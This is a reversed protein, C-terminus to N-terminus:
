SSLSDPTWGLGTVATVSASTNRPALFILGLPYPFTGLPSVLAPDWCTSKPQPAPTLHSLRDGSPWSCPSEQPCKAPAPCSLLSMTSHISSSHPGARWTFTIYPWIHTQAERGQCTRPTLIARRSIIRPRKCIDANMSMGMGAYDRM